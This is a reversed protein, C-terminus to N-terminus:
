ASYWAFVSRCIGTKRADGRWQSVTLRSPPCPPAIWSFTTVLRGSRSAIMSPQNAHAGLLSASSNM